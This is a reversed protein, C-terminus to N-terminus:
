STTDRALARNFSSDSIYDDTPRLVLYPSVVANVRVPLEAASWQWGTIRSTLGWLLFAMNLRLSKRRADAVVTAADNRVGAKAWVM